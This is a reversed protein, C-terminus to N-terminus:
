NGRTPFRELEFGGRGMGTARLLGMSSITSRRAGGLSVAMQPYQEELDPYDNRLWDPFSRAAAVPVTVGHATVTGQSLARAMPLTAGGGTLVVTLRRSPHASIWNIWDPHASTLIDVLTKRLSDEFSKVAPEALFEPLAVDVVEGTYLQITAAASPGFLSEKHLRIDRDLAHTINRYKPHDSNVGSKKLILAMLIKDLHNGAETIGRASGEVEGANSKQIHGEEDVVVHLRYLSFDSTGAGIDVILALSDQSTKWSLLSGAVGLPETIAETVFSYSRAHSRLQALASLFRAIPLGQHIAHGFTDALVQAEGLLVRLKDRVKLAGPRPFCPMAFRRKFNQPVLEAQVDARLAASITWTFFALYALVITEYTLSHGTPNFTSAIPEDLNDESLARKINDIRSNQGEPAVQARDVANQGFWFMGNVDIFVSSVLMMEDIQEQDGPIGLRLPQIYEVESDSDRVFTAKSMATGFDVCVRCNSDAEPLSLATLDLAVEVDVNAKSPTDSEASTLNGHEEPVEAAYITLSGCTGMSSENTSRESTFFDLAELETHTIAGLLRHKGDDGLEIRDRLNSLIIKAKTSDM